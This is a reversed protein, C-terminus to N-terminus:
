PQAGKCGMHTKGDVAIRPTIGATSARQGLYQCGTAPDLYMSLTSYGDLQPVDPMRAPAQPRDCGALLVALILIRKM